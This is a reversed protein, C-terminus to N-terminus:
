IVNKISEIDKINNFNHLTFKSSIRKILSLPLLSTTRELFSDADETSSIKRSLEIGTPVAVFATSTITLPGLPKPLKKPNIM